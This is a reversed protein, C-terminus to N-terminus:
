VGDGDPGSQGPSKEDDEEDPNYIEYGHADDYYYERMKQDESWSANDAANDKRQEDQKEEHQEIHKEIPQTKKPKQPM